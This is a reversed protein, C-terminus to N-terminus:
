SLQERMYLLLKKERRSVQVQTIGLIQATKSQTFSKFYRLELLTRDEDSLEQMLQRLALIDIITEDPAEVPIDLQSEDDSATLSLLPQSACLAESIDSETEGTIEALESIAPERGNHQVFDSCIKQLKISLDKLSRSVHVSGGDRFLRKIEGLIVPVAYTSFKVGRSSDFAKVAKLLGLCGASYLDEYEIGRGRFRNACLHVLGLNEEALPQKVEVAM